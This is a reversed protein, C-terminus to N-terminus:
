QCDRNELLVLRINVWPTADAWPTCLARVKLAQVQLGEAELRPQQEVRREGLVAEISVHQLPTDSEKELRNRRSSWM